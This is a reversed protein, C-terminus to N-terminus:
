ILERRWPSVLHGVVMFLLYLFWACVVGKFLGGIRVYEFFDLNLYWVLWLAAFIPFIGTVILLWTQGRTWAKKAAIGEMSKRLAKYGFVLGAGLAAVVIATILWSQATDEWNTPDTNDMFWELFNSELFFLLMM